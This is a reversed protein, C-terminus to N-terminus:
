QGKLNPEIVTSMGASSTHPGAQCSSKIAWCITGAILQKRGLCVNAHIVVEVFLCVDNSNCWHYLQYPKIQKILLITEETICFPFNDARFSIFKGVAPM